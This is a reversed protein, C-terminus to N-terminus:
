ALYQTPGLGLERVELTINVGLEAARAQVDTLRADQVELLALAARVRDAGEAPGVEKHWQSDVSRVTAQCAAGLTKLDAGRSEWKFAAELGALVAVGVGVVAYFVAAGVSSSGLIQNATERTAVLAGLFILVVKSVTALRAVRQAESALVDTMSQLEQQRDNIGAQVREFDHRDSAEVAM